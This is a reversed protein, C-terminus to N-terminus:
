CPDAQTTTSGPSPLSHKPFHAPPRLAAAASGTTSTPITRRSCPPMPMWSGADFSDLQRDAFRGLLLDMERTGRHLFPIEAAEAGRGTRKGAGDDGKEAAGPRTLKAAWLRVALRSDWRHSRIDEIGQERWYGTQRADTLPQRFHHFFQGTRQDHVQEPVQRAPQDVAPVLRM